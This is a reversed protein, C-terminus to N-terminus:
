GPHALREGVYRHQRRDEGREADELAQGPLLPDQLVQARAGVGHETREVRDRVGEGRERRGAALPGVADEERRGAPGAAVREVVVRIPAETSREVEADEGPRVAR